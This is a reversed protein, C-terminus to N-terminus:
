DSSPIAPKSSEQGNLNIEFSVHKPYHSEMPQMVIQDATVYDRFAHYMHLQYSEWDGMFQLVKCTVTYKFPVQSIKIVSLWPSEFKALANYLSPKM